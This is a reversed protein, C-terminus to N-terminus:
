VFIKKKDGSSGSSGSPQRLINELFGHIEHQGNAFIYIQQRIFKQGGLGFGVFVQLERVIMSM